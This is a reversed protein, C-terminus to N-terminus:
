KSRTHKYNRPIWAPHSGASATGGQDLQRHCKHLSLPLHLVRDVLLAPSSATTFGREATFTPTCSSPSVPKVKKLQVEKFNADVYIENVAPVVAMLPMGIQVRQGVQVQRRAVVGDVPSALTTRNLDVTAQELRARAAMVEPHNDATTDAILVANAEKAPLQQNSTPRPPILPM